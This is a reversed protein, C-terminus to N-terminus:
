AAQGGAEAQLAARKKELERERALDAADRPQNLAHAQELRARVDALERDVDFLQQGASLPKAAGPASKKELWFVRDSAWWGRVLVRWNRLRGQRNLWDNNGEFTLFKARLFEEPIGDAMFAGLFEAETPLHPEGGAGEGTPHETRNQEPISQEQRKTSVELGRVSDFLSVLTPYSEQFDRQFSHPLVDFLNRLHPFINSKPQLQGPAWQHVLFRRSWVRLRSEHRECRFGRGLSKLVSELDELSKGTDDRLAKKSVELYGLNNTAENTILWFFLVKGADDLAAFDDDAWVSSHIKPSM